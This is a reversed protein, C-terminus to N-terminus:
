LLTHKHQLNTHSYDSAQLPLFHSWLRINSGLHLCTIARQGEMRREAGGDEERSRWGGRQGEMRRETGGDEERSRWGGRQEEMRRETGGDEERSRWRGRQEEM